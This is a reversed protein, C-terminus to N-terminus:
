LAKRALAEVWLIRSCKNVFTAVYRRGGHSPVNVSLVDTHVLELLETMYRVSRPFPLQFRALSPVHQM